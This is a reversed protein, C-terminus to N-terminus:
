QVGLQHLEQLFSKSNHISTGGLLVRFGGSSTSGPPPYYGSASPHAPSGHAAASSANLSAVYAAEEYTTGGLMFVIVDRAPPANGGVGGGGAGGAGSPPASGFVNPFKAEPLKGTRADDLIKALLPKHQTFVNDVVGGGRVTKLGMQITKSVFDTSTGFLDLSRRQTGCTSLIQDVLQVDSPIVDNARLMQKLEGIRNGGHTEYRLAYLLVLYLKYGPAISPDSVKQKVRELHAQHDSSCAMDQQLASVDLLHFQEILRSLEGVVAVHKSANNALKKFEPFNEVFRQMDEVTKLQRSSDFKSKYVDLMRKANEALAGYDRFMNQTFFEDAGQSLVVRQLDKDVKPAESLDVLNDKIGILEHVMAQYTWQALIPTVPDDRRDLILLLTESTQTIAGFEFLTKDREMEHKLERAFHSCLESGATFRVVPKQRLSLLVAILGRVSRRFIQDEEDRTWRGRSKTLRLAGSLDFDFLDRNVALFDAFYEQVEKVVHHRDAEALERLSDQPLVNTFFIHYEGYMPNTIEKVVADVMARTPRCLIVGKLHMMKERPAPPPTNPDTTLPPPKPILPATLFVSKELIQSQTYVMSVVRTADDDLLLAKMGQVSSVIRDFYSSVAQRVDMTPTIVTATAAAYLPVDKASASPQSRLPPRNGPM